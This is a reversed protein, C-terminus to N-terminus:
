RRYKVSCLEWAHGEPTKVWKRLGQLACSHFTYAKVGFPLKAEVDEKVEKNFALYCTQKRLREDFRACLQKLTTTKGSGAVANIICNGNEKDWWDFIAFQRDSPTFNNFSAARQVSSKYAPRPNYNTMDIM